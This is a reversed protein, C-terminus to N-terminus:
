SLWLVGLACCKAGGGDPVSVALNEACCMACVCEGLNNLWLSRVICIYEGLCKGLFPLLANNPYRMMAKMGGKVAM